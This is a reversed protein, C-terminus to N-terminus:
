SFVFLVALGNSEVQQSFCDTFRENMADQTTARASVSTNPPQSPVASVNGSGGAVVVGVTVELEIQGAGEVIGSIENPIEVKPGFRLIMTGLPVATFNM